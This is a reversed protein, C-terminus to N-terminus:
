EELLHTRSEEWGLNPLMVILYKFHDRSKLHDRAQRSNIGVRALCVSIEAMDSSGYKFKQLTESSPSAIRDPSKVHMASFRRECHLTSKLAIGWGSLESVSIKVFLEIM